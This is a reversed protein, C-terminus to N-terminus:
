KECKNPNEPYNEKFYEDTRKAQENSQWEEPVHHYACTVYEIMEIAEQYKSNNLLSLVEFNFYQSGSSAMVGMDNIIKHHLIYALYSALGFGFLFM